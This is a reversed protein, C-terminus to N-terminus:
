HRELLPKGGTLERLRGWVERCHTRFRGAAGSYAANLEKEMLEMWTRHRGQRDVEPSKKTGFLTGDGSAVLGLGICTGVIFKALMPPHGTLSRIWAAEDLSAVLALEALDRRVNVPLSLEGAGFRCLRSVMTLVRPDTLDEALRYSQHTAIPTQVHTVIRQWYEDPRGLLHRASEIIESWFATDAMRDLLLRNREAWTRMGETDSMMIREALILELLKKEDPTLPEEIDRLLPPSFYIGSLGDSALEIIRARELFNTPAEVLARLRARMAPWNWLYRHIRVAVAHSAPYDPISAACKNIFNNLAHTHDKGELDPKPRAREAAYIRRRVEIKWEAWEDWLWQSANPLIVNANYLGDIRREAALLQRIQQDASLSTNQEHPRPRHWLIRRAVFQICLAHLHHVTEDDGFVTLLTPASTLILEALGNADETIATTTEAERLLLEICSELVAIEELDCTNLRQVLEKAWTLAHSAGQESEQFLQALARLGERTAGAPLEQLRQQALANLENVIEEHSDLHKSLHSITKLWRTSIPQHQLASVLCALLQPERFGLRLLVRAHRLQRAAWSLTREPSWEHPPPIADLAARHAVALENMTSAAETHVAALRYTTDDHLYRSYVDVSSRRTLRHADQARQICDRAEASRGSALASETAGTLMRAVWARYPVSASTLDRPLLSVAQEYLLWRGRRTTPLQAIARHLAKVTRWDTRLAAHASTGQTTVLASLHTQVTRVDGLRGAGELVWFHLDAPLPSGGPSLDMNAIVEKAPPAEYPEEAEAYVAEDEPQPAPIAPLLQTLPERLLTSTVALSAIHRRQLGIREEPISTVLSALLKSQETVCRPNDLVRRLGFLRAWAETKCREREITILGIAQLRHVARRLEIDLDEVRPTAWPVVAFWAALTDDLIATGSAIDSAGRGLTQWVLAGFANLVNQWQLCVDFLDSEVGAAPEPYRLKLMQLANRVALPHGEFLELADTEEATLPRNIVRTAWQGIEESSLRQLEGRECVRIRAQPIQALCELQQTWSELVVTHGLDILRRIFRGLDAPARAQVSRQLSEFIVIAPRGIWNSLVQVATVPRQDIKAHEEDPLRLGFLLAAAIDHATLCDTLDTFHMPAKVNGLALALFMSKGWGPTGEMVVVRGGEHADQEIFNSWKDAADRRTSMPEAVDWTIRRPEPLGEPLNERATPARRITASRLQRLDKFNKDVCGALFAVASMWLHMSPATARHAKDLRAPLVDRVVNEYSNRADWGEPREFDEPKLNLTYPIRKHQQLTAIATALGGKKTAMGKFTVSELLALVKMCFPELTMILQETLEEFHARQGATTHILGHIAGLMREGLREFDKPAQPAEAGEVLWRLLEFIERAEQPDGNALIVARTPDRVAPHEWRSFMEALVDLDQDGLVAPTTPTPSPTNAPLTM